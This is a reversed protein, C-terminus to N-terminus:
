IASWHNPMLQSAWGASASPNKANHTLWIAKKGTNEIAYLRPKATHQSFLSVSEKLFRVGSIRCQNPFKTIAFLSTSFLISILLIIKKM